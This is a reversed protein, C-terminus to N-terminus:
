AHGRSDYKSKHENTNRRCEPTNVVGSGQCWINGKAAACSLTSPWLHHPWHILHTYQPHQSGLVLHAYLTCLYLVPLGFEATDAVARDLGIMWPRAVKFSILLFSRFIWVVEAREEMLHSNGDCTMQPCDFYKPPLHDCTASLYLVILKWNLIRKFMQIESNLRAVRYKGQHHHTGQTPWHQWM